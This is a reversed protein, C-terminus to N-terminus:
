FWETLEVKIDNSRCIAFFGNGGNINGELYIPESFPDNAVRGYINLSKEFLYMDEPISLLKIKFSWFADYLSYGDQFQTSLKIYCTDGSIKSGDIFYASVPSKEYTYDWDGHCSFHLMALGHMVAFFGPSNSEVISFDLFGERHSGSSPGAHIGSGQLLLAYFQKQDKMIEFSIGLAVSKVNKLRTCEQPKSLPIVQKEISNLHLGSPPEPVITEASIEPSDKEKAKLFYKEGTSFTLSDPIRLELFNKIVSDSQFRFLEKTESSISFSFERLSDNVEEPYESQFSKEFSIRRITDDAVIIGISCLKEPLDPRYFISNGECKCYLIAISVLYTSLLLLRNTKLTTMTM